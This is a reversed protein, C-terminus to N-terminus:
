QWRCGTLDPLKRQEFNPISDPKLGRAAHGADFFAITLPENVLLQGDLTLTTFSPGHFKPGLDALAVRSHAATALCVIGFILSRM